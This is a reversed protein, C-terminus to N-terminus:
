AHSEDKAFLTALLRSPTREAVSPLIGTRIRLLSRTAVAWCQSGFHLDITQKLLVFQLWSILAQSDSVISLASRLARWAFPRVPHSTLLTALRSRLNPLGLSCDRRCARKRVLMPVVATAHTSEFQSLTSLAMLMADLSYDREVELM